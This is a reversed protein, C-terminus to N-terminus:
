CGIGNIVWRYNRFRRRMRIVSVDILVVYYKDRVDDDVRKKIFKLFGINRVIVNM